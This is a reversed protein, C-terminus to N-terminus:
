DGEGQDSAGDGAASAAPRKFVSCGWLRRQRRSFRWCGSKAIEERCLRIGNRGQWGRRLAAEEEVEQKLAEAQM